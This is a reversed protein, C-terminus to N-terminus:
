KIQMKYKPPPIARERCSSKGSCNHSAPHTVDVHDRSWKEDEHLHDGAGMVFQLLPIRMDQHSEVVSRIQTAGDLGTMFLLIPSFLLLENPLTVLCMIDLPFGSSKAAV